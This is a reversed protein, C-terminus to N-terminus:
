AKIAKFRRNGHGPILGKNVPHWSKGGDTSKLVGREWCAAYLVNGNTPHVVLANVNVGEILAQWTEGGNISKYIGGRSEFPKGEYAKAVAVYITRADNPSLAVTTIFHNRLALYRWTRGGDTSKFIGEYATGAYMVNPNKPDIALVNGEQRTIGHGCFRIDASLLDWHEGGDRSIFVGGTGRPPQPKERGFNCGVGIYLVNPNRPHFALTAVSHHTHIEILGRNIIRWHDGYDTSKFVGGIDSFVYVVNPQRPDIAIGNLYTGGNIPCSRWQYRVTAGHWRGAGPAFLTALAIGFQFWVLM